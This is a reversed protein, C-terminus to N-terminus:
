QILLHMPYPQMRNTEHHCSLFFWDACTPESAAELLNLTSDSTRSISTFQTNLSFREGIQKAVSTLTAPHQVVARWRKLQSLIGTPKVTTLQSVTTASTYWFIGSPFQRPSLVLYTSVFLSSEYIIDPLFVLACCFALIRSLVLRFILLYLFRCVQM